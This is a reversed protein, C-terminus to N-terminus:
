YSSFQSDIKKKKLLIDIKFYAGCLSSEEEM